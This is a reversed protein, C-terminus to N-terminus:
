TRGGVALGARRLDDPVDLDALLAPAFDVWAAEARHRRVVERGRGEGEGGLLEPFLSRAYLTPPATVDGYRATVLPAGTAAHREVVARIMAEDVLPMDALLVVAASAEPPLAGVGASLSTNMGRAHEPNLVARCALGDLERRVREAQHGIVVLVPDVGAALSRLVARRLLTQGEIEILVKNRGMRTSAGAALIMAAITM